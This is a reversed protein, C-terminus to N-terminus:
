SQMKVSRIKSLENKDGLYDLRDVAQCFMEVYVDNSPLISILLEIHSLLNAESLYSIYKIYSDKIRNDM